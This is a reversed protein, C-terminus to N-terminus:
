SLDIALSRIERRSRVDLKAFIHSLHWEVTRPSIFLQAGIESNTHGERVLRTIHREQTTLTIAAGKARQHVTVGAAALERNTRSAFGDIGMEVFMDFATQLQTRAEARRNNRRLWEGYVLHARALFVAVPSERLHVIADMFDDNASEGDNVLARSRAAVGLATPTGSADTREILRALADRAIMNEGCRTAGEILEPLLYGVLGFDDDELGSLCASVAKSYNGLGNHLIAVAYHTVTVENGEGRSSAGAITAEASKLCLKEQGRYAAIYPELSTQPAAGTATTIAEAEELTAAATAIHGTGVCLGAYTWLAIPLMTLEGAARLKNLQRATLLNYADQDFLDLSVRNTINHWRPDVADDDERSFEAIAHKLLPAAAVYGDTYRVILGDLLLDM